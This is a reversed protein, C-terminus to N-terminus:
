GGSPSCRLQDLQELLTSERLRACEDRLVQVAGAWEAARDERPTPIAGPTVLDRLLLDVQGFVISAEKLRMTPDVQAIQEARRALPEFHKDRWDAFAKM